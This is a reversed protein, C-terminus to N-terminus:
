ITEMQVTNHTSEYRIKHSKASKIRDRITQHNTAMIGGSNAYSKYTTVCFQEDMGSMSIRLCIPINHSSTSM